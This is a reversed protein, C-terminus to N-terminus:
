RRSERPKRAEAPLRLQRAAYAEVLACVYDFTVRFQGTLAQLQQVSGDMQCLLPLYTRLREDMMSDYPTPIARALEVLALFPPPTNQEAEIEKIIQSVRERSIGFEQQVQSPRRERLAEILQRRQGSLKSTDILAIRLATELKQGPPRQIRVSHLVYERRSLEAQAIKRWGVNAIAYVNPQILGTKAMVVDVPYDRLLELVERQRKTLRVDAPIEQGHPYFRRVSVGEIARWAAAAYSAITSRKLGLMASVTQVEHDRLLEIVTRHRPDLQVDAPIEEGHPYPHQTRANPNSPAMAIRELRARARDVCRLVQDKNLGTAEMVESVTQHQLLTLIRQQMPTLLVMTIRPIGHSHTQM